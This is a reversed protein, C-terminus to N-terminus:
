ECPHDPCVFRFSLRDSISETEGIPLRASAPLRYEKCGRHDFSLLGKGSPPIPLQLQYHRPTTGARTDSFFIAIVSSVLIVGREGPVRPLNVNQATRPSGSEIKRRTFGVKVVIQQNQSLVLPQNKREHEGDNRNDAHGSKSHMGYIDGRCFSFDVAFIGIDKRELPGIRVVVHHIHLIVDLRLRSDEGAFRHRKLCNSIAPKGRMRIRWRLRQKRLSQWPCDQWDSAAVPFRPM